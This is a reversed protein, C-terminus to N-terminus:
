SIGSIGSTYAAKNLLANTIFKSSEDFTKQFCSKYTPILNGDIQLHYKYTLMRFKQKSEDAVKQKSVKMEVINVLSPLYAVKKNHSGMAWYERKMLTAHTENAPSDIEIVGLVPNSENERNKLQSKNRKRKKPVIDNDDSSASSSDEVPNYSPDIDSNDDLCNLIDPPSESLSLPLSSNRSSAKDDNTPVNEFTEHAKVQEFICQLPDSDKSNSQANRCMRLIKNARCLKM